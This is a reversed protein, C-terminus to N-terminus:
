CNVNLMPAASIAKAARNVSPFEHRKVIQLNDDVCVVDGQDVVCIQPKSAYALVFYVSGLAVAVILIAKVPKSQKKSRQKNKLRFKKFKMGTNEAM